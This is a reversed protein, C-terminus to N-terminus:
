HKAFFGLLRRNVEETQELFFLHGSKEIVALEAGPIRAALRHSNEPPVVRDNSGTLILTPVTLRPLADFADFSAIGQVRRAVEEAPHPHARKTEVYFNVADPKSELSDPHFLVELAGRLMEATARPLFGEIMARAVEPAPGVANKGGFNSCCITLSRLRNPHALAFAQVIMGGMSAGVLHVRPLERADLLALLDGAFREPTRVGDDTPIRTRGSGRNDFTIVCHRAALGRTQREWVEVTSTLGGVLVVPEGQGSEQWYIEIPGANNAQLTPM